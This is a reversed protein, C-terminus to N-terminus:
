IFVRSKLTRLLPFIVIGQVNFDGIAGKLGEAFKININITKGVEVEPQVIIRVFEEKQGKCSFVLLSFFLISFHRVM